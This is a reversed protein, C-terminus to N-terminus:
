KPKRGLAFHAQRIMRAVVTRERKWYSENADRTQPPDTDDRAPNSDEVKACEIRADIAELLNDGHSILDSLAEHANMGPAVCASISGEHLVWEKLRRIGDIGFDYLMKTDDLLHIEAITLSVVSVRKLDLYDLTVPEDTTLDKLTITSM